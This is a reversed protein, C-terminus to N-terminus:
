WIRMEEKLEEPIDDRFLRRVLRVLKSIMEQFVPFHSDM